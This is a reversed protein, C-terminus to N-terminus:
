DPSRKRQRRKRLGSDDSCNTFGDRYGGSHIVFFLLRGNTKTRGRVLNQGLIGTTPSKDHFLIGWAFGM